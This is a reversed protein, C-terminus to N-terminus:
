SWVPDLQALLAEGAELGLSEIIVAAQRVLRARVDSSVLTIEQRERYQQPRKSKLLFIILTDSGAKARKIAEEELEDTVEESLEVVRRGFAPDREMWAYWTTRGIKAAECAGKVTGAIAYAQLARAKVADSASEDTIAVTKGAPKKPTRHTRKATPKTV